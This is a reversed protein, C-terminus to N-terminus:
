LLADWTLVISLDSSDVAPGGGQRRHGRRGRWSAAEGWPEKLVFRIAGLPAPTLWIVLCGRGSCPVRRAEDLLFPLTFVLTVSSQGLLSHKPPSSVRPVVCPHPPTPPAESSRKKEKELESRINQTM